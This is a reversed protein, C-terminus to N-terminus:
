SHGSRRVPRIARVSDRVLIVTQDDYRLEVVTDGPSILIQLRRPSGWAMEAMARSMGLCVQHQQIAQRVERSWRVAAAPGSAKPTGTDTPARVVCKRQNRAPHQAMARQGFGLSALTAMVAVVRRM